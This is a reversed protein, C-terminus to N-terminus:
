GIGWKYCFHCHVSLPVISKSIMVLVDVSLDKEDIELFLAVLTATNEELYSVMVEM